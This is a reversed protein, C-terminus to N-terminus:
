NRVVGHTYVVDRTMHVTDTNTTNAAPKCSLAPERLAWRASMFCLAFVWWAPEILYVATTYSTSCEDFM